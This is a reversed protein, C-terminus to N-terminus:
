ALGALGRGRGLGLPDYGEISFPSNRWREQLVDFYPETIAQKVAEETTLAPDYTVHVDVAGPGPWAELKLSGPLAYLDDREVYWFLLNGRGRCSLNTVKLRAVATEAPMAIQNSKVFSPLPFLYSAAVAGTTRSLCSQSWRRKRGVDDSGSPASGM